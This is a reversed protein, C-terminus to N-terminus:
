APGKKSGGRCDPSAPVAQERQQWEAPSFLHLALAHVGEALEDALLNYVRQHRKVLSLQEFQESVVTLKFHSDTAPGGHLHSENDVVVLLPNLDGELKLQITPQVTM